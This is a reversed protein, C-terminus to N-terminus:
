VCAWINIQMYIEQSKKKKVTIFYLIKGSKGNFHSTESKNRCLVALDM